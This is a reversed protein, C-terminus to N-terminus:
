VLEYGPVTLTGLLFLVGFFIFIAAAGIRVYRMPVFKPLAAGVTAGIGTIAIFALM